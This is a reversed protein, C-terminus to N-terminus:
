AGFDTVVAVGPPTPGGMAALEHSVESLGIRRGIMPRLDAAGSAMLSFLSPYRHAAMGRTGHISLQGSYLVDWPLAIRTEDGAPM